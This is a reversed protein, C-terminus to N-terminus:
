GRARCIKQDRDDVAEVDGEWLLGIDKASSSGSLEIQKGVIYAM